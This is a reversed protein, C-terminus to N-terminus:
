TNGLVWVRAKQSGYRTEGREHCVTGCGGLQLLHVPIAVARRKGIGICSSAQERYTVLSRAVFAAM